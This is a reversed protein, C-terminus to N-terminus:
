LDTHIKSIVASQQSKTYGRNKLTKRLKTYGSHKYLAKYSQYASVHLVMSGIFVSQSM